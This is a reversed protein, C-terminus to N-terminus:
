IIKKIQKDKNQLKKQEERLYKKYAKKEDNYRKLSEKYEELEEPTLNSIKALEFVKEFINVQEAIQKNEIEM